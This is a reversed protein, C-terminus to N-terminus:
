RIQDNGASPPNGRHNPYCHAQRRELLEHADIDNEIEARYEPFGGPGRFLPRQADIQEAPM